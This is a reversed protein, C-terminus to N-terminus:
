SDFASFKLPVRDLVLLDTFPQWLSGFSVKITAGFAQRCAYQSQLHLEQM